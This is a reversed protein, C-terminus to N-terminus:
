WQWRPSLNVLHPWPVRAMLKTTASPMALLTSVVGTPTIKRICSTAAPPGYAITDSAYLNGDPDLILDLISTFLAAAGTGDSYGSSGGALLVFTTGGAALSFIQSTKSLYIVGGSGVAFQVDGINTFSPITSLVASTVPTSVPNGTSQTTIKRIAATNPPADFAGDLVYLDGATFYLRKPFYFSASAGVASDVTRGCLYNFGCTVSSSYGDGAVLTVANSPTFAHVVRSGFNAVYIISGDASVAMGGIGSQGGHIGTLGNSLANATPTGAGAFAVPTGIYEGVQAAAPLLCALALLLVARM